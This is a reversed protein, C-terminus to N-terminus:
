EYAFRGYDGLRYKSRRRFPCIEKLYFEVDYLIINIILLKISYFPVIKGREGHSRARRSNVICYNAGHPVMRVDVTRTGATRRAIFCDSQIGRSYGVIDASRRFGRGRSTM